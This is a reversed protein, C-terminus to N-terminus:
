TKKEVEVINCYEKQLCLFFTLQILLRETSIKKYINKEAILAFIHAFIIWIYM